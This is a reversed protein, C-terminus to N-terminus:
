GVPESLREAMFSELTTAVRTCETYVCGFLNRKTGKWRTFINYKERCTSTQKTILNTIAYVILELDIHWHM